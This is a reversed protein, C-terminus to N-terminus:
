VLEQSIDKMTTATEDWSNNEKDEKLQSSHDFLM